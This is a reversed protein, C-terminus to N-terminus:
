SSAELGRRVTDLVEEVSFPKSLYAFSGLGAAELMSKPSGYATLMIVPLGPREEHILKLLEIGDMPSMRVDSIVLNVDEVSRVVGIAKSGDSATIVDYGKAQLLIKLVQLIYEEDDVVLIMAMVTCSVVGYFRTGGTTEQVCLLLPPM